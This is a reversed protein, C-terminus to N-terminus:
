HVPHPGLTHAAFVTGLKTARLRVAVQRAHWRNRCVAFYSTGSGSMQHGCVGAQQMTHAIKNIWPDLKSAAGQLRNFMRSGLKSINFDQLADM